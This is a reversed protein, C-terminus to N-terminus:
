RVEIVASSTEPNEVIRFIRALPIHYVEHHKVTALTVLDDGITEITAPLAGQGFDVALPRDQMDTLLMALSLGGRTTVAQPQATVETALPKDPSELTEPLAKSTEAERERQEEALLKVLPQWEEETERCVEATAEIHGSELFERISDLSRPGLIKGDPATFYYGHHMMRRSLLLKLELQFSTVRM